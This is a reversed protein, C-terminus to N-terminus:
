VRRHARQVVLVPSAWGPDDRRLPSQRIVAHRASFLADEISWHTFLADYFGIALDRAAGDSISWRHAIVAPIGAQGLGDLLGHFDGKGKRAVTRGGLCANVFFLLPSENSSERLLSHLVSTPMPRYEGGDRDAGTRFVLASQEPVHGDWRGHGAYHIIHWRQRLLLEEVREYTAETSPVATVEGRIGSEAFRRALLSQIDDVEADVSPTDRGTNSALLLVRLVERRAELKTLAVNFADVNYSTSGDSIIQRFMPHRLALYDEKDALLEFPVEPSVRTGLFGIRLPEPGNRATLLDDFEKIGSLVEFLKGGIDRAAIRWFRDIDRTAESSILQDLNNVRESLETAAFKKPEDLIAGRYRTLGSLQAFVFHTNTLIFTLEQRSSNRAEAERMAAKFLAQRTIEPLAGVDKPQLKEVFDDVGLDKLAERVDAKKGAGTLVICACRRHASADDRIERLLEMGHAEKYAGGAHPPIKLDVFILSFTERSIHDLADGKNTVTVTDAQQHGLLLDGVMRALKDSWEQEDEVILVRM